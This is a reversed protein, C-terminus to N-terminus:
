AALIEDQMAMYKDPNHIRMQILDHRRLTKKGTEGTGGSELTAAKLSATAQANQASVQTTRADRSALAKYTSLLEDAADVDFRQDAAEFLLSRVPSEQIWRQFEESRVIQVADAHKVLVKNTAAQRRALALEAEVPKLAARVAKDVAAKPDDFFDEEEAAPAQPAQQIERQLFRDALQRLEGVEQKTRGLESEVHLYSKVVDEVSKGRFKDPIPTPTPEQPAVVPAAPTQDLPAEQSEVIISDTM